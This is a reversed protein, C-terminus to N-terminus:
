KIKICKVSYLKLVINVYIHFLIKCILQFFDFFCWHRSKYAVIGAYLINLPFSKLHFTRVVRFVGAVVVSSYRINVQRSPFSRLKFYILLDNLHKKKTLCLFLLPPSPTPPTGHGFWFIRTGVESIKTVFFIGFGCINIIILNYKKSKIIKNKLKFTSNLFSTSRIKGWTSKVVYILGLNLIYKFVIIIKKNLRSDFNINLYIYKSNGTQYYLASGHKLILTFHLLTHSYVFFNIKKSM